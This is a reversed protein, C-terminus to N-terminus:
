LIHFISTICTTPNLTFCYKSSFPILYEYRDSFVPIGMFISLGVNFPFRFILASSYKMIQSTSPTEASNNEGLPKASRVYHLSVFFSHLVFISISGSNGGTYQWIKKSQINQLNEGCEIAAFTEIFYKTVKATKTRCFAQDSVFLLSCKIRHLMKSSHRRM